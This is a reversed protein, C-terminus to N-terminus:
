AKSAKNMDGLLSKWFTLKEQAHLEKESCLQKAKTIEEKSVLDFYKETTRQKLFRLNLKTVYSVFEM